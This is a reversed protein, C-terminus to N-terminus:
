EGRPDINLIVSARTEPIRIETALTQRVTAHDERMYPMIKAEPLVLDRVISALNDGVDRTMKDLAMATFIRLVKHDAKIAESITLGIEEALCRAINRKVDDGFQKMIPSSFVDEWAKVNDRSRNLAADSHRLAIDTQVIRTRAGKFAQSKRQSMASPGTFRGSM